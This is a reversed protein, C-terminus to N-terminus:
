RYQNLAEKVVNPVSDRCSPCNYRNAQGPTAAWNKLCSLCYGAHGCRLIVRQNTTYNFESGCLLCDQEDADYLNGPELTVPQPKPQPVVPTSEKIKQNVLNIVKDQLKLGFYDSFNLNARAQNIAQNRITAAIDSSIANKNLQLQTQNLKGYAIDRAREEIYALSDHVINEGLQAYTENNFITRGRLEKEIINRKFRDFENLSSIDRHQDIAFLNDMYHSLYNRAQQETYRSNNTSPTPRHTPGPQAPRQPAQVAHAFQRIRKEALATAKSQLPTGFYGDFKGNLDASTLAITVLELEIEDAITKALTNPDITLHHNQNLKALAYAKTNHKIYDISASILQKALIELTVKTFITRGYLLNAITNRKFTEYENRTSYDPFRHAAFLADCYNNLYHTAQISTFQENSSPFSPAPQAALVDDIFDSGFALLPFALTTLLILSYRNYSTFM